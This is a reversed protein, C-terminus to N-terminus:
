HPSGPPLPPSESTLGVQVRTRGSFKRRSYSQAHVQGRLAQPVEVHLFIRSAEQLALALVLTSCSDERACPVAAALLFHERRLQEQRQPTKRIVKRFPEALGRQAQLAEETYKLVHKQQIQVQPRNEKIKM